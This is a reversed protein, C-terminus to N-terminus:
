YTASNDTDPTAGSRDTVSVIDPDDGAKSVIMINVISNDNLTM